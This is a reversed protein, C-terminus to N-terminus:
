LFIRPVHDFDIWVLWHALRRGRPVTVGRSLEALVQDNKSASFTIAFFSDNVINEYKISFFSCPRLGFNVLMLKRLWTHAVGTLNPVATLDNNVPAPVPELHKGVDDKNIQFLTDVFQAEIDWINDSPLRGHSM